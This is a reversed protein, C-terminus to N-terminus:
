PKVDAAEEERLYLDVDGAMRVIINRFGYMKLMELAAEQSYPLDKGRFQVNKWGLLITEACSEILIQEYLKAAAEDGKLLADRHEAVKRQRVSEFNPNGDRAVLFQSDGVSQWVGDLDKAPDFDFQKLDM